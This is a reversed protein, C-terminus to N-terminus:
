DTGQPPCGHQPPVKPSAIGKHNVDSRNKASDKEGNWGMFFTEKPLGVFKMGLPGDKPKPPEAAAVGLAGVLVLCWACVSWRALM